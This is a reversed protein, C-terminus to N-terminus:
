PNTDIKSLHRLMQQLQTQTKLILRSQWDETASDPSDSNSFYTTSYTQIEQDLTILQNRLLKRKAESEESSDLSSITTEMDSLIKKWRSVETSFQAPRIRPRPRELFLIADLIAMEGLQHHTTYAARLARWKRLLEDRRGVDLPRRISCGHLSCEWPSTLSDLSSGPLPGSNVSILFSHTQEVLIDEYQRLRLEVKPMLTLLQILLQHLTEKENQPIDNAQSPLQSLSEELLEIMQQNNRHISQPFYQTPTLEEETSLNFYRNQLNQVAVELARLPNEQNLQSAIETLVRQAELQNRKRSFDSNWLSRFADELNFPDLSKSAVEDTLRKWEPDKTLLDESPQFLNLQSILRNCFHSKPDEDNTWGSQAGLHSASISIAAMAIWFNGTLGFKM